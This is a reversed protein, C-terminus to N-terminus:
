TVPKRPFPVYYSRLISVTGSKLGEARATIRFIFPYTNDPIPYTSSDFQASGAVNYPYVEVWYQGKSAALSLDADGSKAAEAFTTYSAATSQSMAPAETEGAQTAMIYDAQFKRENPSSPMCVGKNAATDSCTGQSALAMDMYDQMDRPFRCSAANAACHLGNARIDAEANRLLAESAAYARQADAQNGVISENFLSLRMAGLVLLMTLLLLVLITFLSIGRQRQRSARGFGQVSYTRTMIPGM